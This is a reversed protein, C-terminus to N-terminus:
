ASKDRRKPKGDEKPKPNILSQIEPDDRYKKATRFHEEMNAKAIIASKKVNARELTDVGKPNEAM